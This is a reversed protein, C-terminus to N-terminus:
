QLPAPASNSTGIGNSVTATVSAIAEILTQGTKVPGQLNFPMTITFLGGYSSSASSLFWVDSGQTLDITPQTTAINFGSAPTFTVNLSSLSRTTTYGTLVLDFSSSTENSIQASVLFPALSPITFQLTTPSSPTLDVGGPTTFTPALTVTEAVTGTQLPLESGQGAFNASTSNAPITFDVTRSGTDFQVAPDTGFTGETTITLTGTLDLAYGKSLTLSVNSQTAPQVNGSPGTITYSPLPAPVTASGTLTISTTNSATAVILSGSSIGTVTPTFTITFSLPGNPALTKPLAIPSVTFPGSAVSPEILSITAPLSGTNTITFTVSESQGVPVPSFVVAGGTAPNVTTTSGNSAYAYTWQGLGQGSLNFFDNGIVLQGTQTGVETPTFTLPVSFSNGTTITTPLTIPNTLTFPGSTSVSSITGSASGTNTVQVILSSTNGSTSGVDAGPFTITGGPAVATSMGQVLYKYTFTSTTGSGALNVTATAGGQYTITIAATDNEVATPTYQVLLQVSNGSTVGLGITPPILPINGVKFPSGAPPTTIGTIVGTGSGVNTIDLSAQATTNIQTPGFPITGGPPIVVQNGNTQLVYSLVFSPSTGQLGLQIANQVATGGAGPETYTVALTGLAEAPTTPSYTIVLTFSDGFTLMEGVTLNTSVVTFETSGQQQLAQTITAQSSGNYTAKVTIQQQTGVTTVFPLTSGNSIMSSQGNSSAVLTFDITQASALGAAIAALILSRIVFRRAM